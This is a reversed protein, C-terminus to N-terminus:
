QLMAEAYSKFQDLSITTTFDITQSEWFAEGIEFEAEEAWLDRRLIFFVFESPFKALAEKPREGDKLEALTRAWLLRNASDWTPLDLKWFSKSGLM